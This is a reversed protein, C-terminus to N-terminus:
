DLFEQQFKNWVEPPMDSLPFDALEGGAQLVMQPDASSVSSTANVLFDKCRALEEKTWQIADENLKCDQVEEKWQEPRLRYLWGKGYPDTNVLGQYTEVDHNIKSIRGTVPSAIKLERGDRVVRAVPEGRSVREGEGKLFDVTVGGTMHLLMDDLGIKANGSKEMFAWTHNRNYYLGLPIRLVAESLGRLSRVLESGAKVPKNLWIWVPILLLLFGIVVLYEIGKTDFIDTYSFADM